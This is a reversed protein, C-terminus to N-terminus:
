RGTNKLYRMRWKVRDKVWKPVPRRKYKDIDQWIRKSIDVTTLGKDKPRGGDIYLVAVCDKAKITTKEGM